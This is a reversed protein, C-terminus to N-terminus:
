QEESGWQEVYKNKDEESDFNASTLFEMDVFGSDIYKCVIAKKTEFVIIKTEYDDRGFFGNCFGYIVKGINMIGGEGIEINGLNFILEDFSLCSTPYNHILDNDWMDSLVRGKEIFEDFVEKINEIEEKKSM